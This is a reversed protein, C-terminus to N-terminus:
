ESLGHDYVTDLEEEPVCGSCPETPLLTFGPSCGIECQVLSFCACADQDFSWSQSDLGHIADCEEQSSVRTIATEISLETIDEEQSVRLTTAVAACFLITQAFIRM